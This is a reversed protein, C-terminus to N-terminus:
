VPFLKSLDFYRSCQWFPKTNVREHAFSNCRSLIYHLINLFWQFYINSTPFFQQWGRIYSTQHIRWPSRSTYKGSKRPICNSFLVHIFWLLLIIYLALLIIVFLICWTFVRAKIIVSMWVFMCHVTWHGDHFVTFSVLCVVTSGIVMNKM